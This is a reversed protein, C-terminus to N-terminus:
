SAHVRRRRWIGRILMIFAIGFLMFAADRTHDLAFEQARERLGPATVSYDLATVGRVSWVAARGELAHWLNSRALSRSASEFSSLEPSTLSSPPLM